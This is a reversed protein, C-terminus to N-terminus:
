CEAEWILHCKGTLFYLMGSVTETTISCDYRVIARHIPQIVEEHILQDIEQAPLGAIIKPHIGHYWATNIASLVQIYVHQETISMQNKAVRRAFKSKLRNARKYLDSREGNELKKELGIVDRDPNPTIYDALDEIIDIIKEDQQWTKKVQEIASELSTLPTFNNDGLHKAGGQYLAGTDM